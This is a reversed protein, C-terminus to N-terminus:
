GEGRELGLRRLKRFLTSPHVGLERAAAARNGGHRELADLIMWREMEELTRGAKTEGESEAPGRISEPLHHVDIRRGQCMLFAYEIINRLERVNGPFDYQTLRALAQPTLGEVRRGQIRNFSRIFHEALLPIDERREKLPPLRLRVVNLRFYLDQRFKGEAALQDLDRNTAALVRVDVPEPRVSGLPEIVKEELVRLLRAQMAPSIDGIEDLLLTGGNALAFRGPKDKRADTFAGAKYGFLESELLTDPLAACNLAVFPKKRRPSLDHLARAAVEKGSGSPGEILVTADSRALIPLKEFLRLMPPSRGVMDGLTFRGELQKRLEEVRSLDRFTEVGGIVEGRANKLVATSISIPVRRGEVNLIYVEQDVVPKGTQITRRLACASECINARFVDWCRRGIAEERPVGTIEEAARNFSTIRREADVTFVGDAISDLITRHLADEEAAPNPQSSTEAMLQPPAEPGPPADAGEL